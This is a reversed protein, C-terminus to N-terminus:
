RAPKDAAVIPQRKADAVFYGHELFSLTAARARADFMLFSHAVPLLLFDRAGILRTSEVTVVLDNDSPLLPNYGKSQGRGGAIIGFECHPTALKKEFDSWAKGLQQGAGGTVLEYAKNEALFKAIEAGHNPPGLMVFRKIRPDGQRGTQPDTADHLYHRIVLNGLSHAVFNIEEVGDLHALISALAQAQAGVEAQTSAYSMALSDVHAHNDLYNGLSEMSSRSRFLGHLLLVVRGKMPPLKLDRKTAELKDQCEAFTGSAHTWDRDDLLRCESTLANKQIRWGHFLLHDTWFQKGGLTPLPVDLKAASNALVAAAKLPDAARLTRKSWGGLAMM